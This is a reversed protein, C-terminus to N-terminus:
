GLLKQYINSGSGGKVGANMGSTKTFFAAMFVVSIIEAIIIPLSLKIEYNDIYEYTVTTSKHTKQLIAQLRKSNSRFNVYYKRDDKEFFVKYTPM